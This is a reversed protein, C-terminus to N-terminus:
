WQHYNIDNIMIDNLNSNNTGSKNKLNTQTMKEKNQTASEM